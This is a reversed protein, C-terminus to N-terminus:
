GRISREELALLVQVPVCNEGLKPKYHKAVIEVLENYTKDKLKDTSVLHKMMAYTSNGCMTLM